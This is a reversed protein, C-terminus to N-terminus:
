GEGEGLIGACLKAGKQEAGSQGARNQEALLRRRGLHLRSTSPVPSIERCVRPAEASLAVGVLGHARVVAGDAAAAHDLYSSRTTIGSRQHPELPAAATTAAPRELNSIPPSAPQSAQRGAKTRTGGLSRLTQRVMSGYQLTM